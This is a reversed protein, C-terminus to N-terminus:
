RAAKQLKQLEARWNFIVNLQRSSMGGLSAVMLFRKGDPHVDYGRHYANQMLGPESFLRRPTGHEFQRGTKVPVAFMEGRSTRFFLETGDRRWLPETGGGVSIAFRASDVNPFPRVYVEPAGSEESVYALWRSDPSLAMAYHDFRSQILTRPVTDVGNQVVLLRRSGAASGESRLLTYRGSRELEIEDLQTNGPSAPRTSDSGDARRM